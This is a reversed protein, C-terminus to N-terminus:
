LDVDGDGSVKFLGGNALAAGDADVEYLGDDLEVAWRRNVGDWQEILRGDKVVKAAAVSAPLVITVKRKPPALTTGFTIDDALPGYIQAEQPYQQGKTQDAVVSRVFGSLKSATIRGFEDRPASGSLGDLLAKTFYGRAHDDAGAAPSEYTPNGLISGFGIVWTTSRGKWPAACEELGPGAGPAASRVRTRCCDAFVVVERFYACTTCWRRYQTLEINRQLADTEANALFLAGEGGQPAFGHGAVYFYLRTRDWAQEDADLRPKLADRIDQLAYDIEDHTPKAGRAQAFAQEEADTVCVHKVNAKPLAGGNSDVLWAAFQEADARAGSLNGIGPYRNIGVVIAYHLDNGAV